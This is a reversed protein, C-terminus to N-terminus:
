SGKEIDELPSKDPHPLCGILHQTAHHLASIALAFYQYVNVNIWANRSRWGYSKCQLVESILLASRSKDQCDRLRTTHPPLFPLGPCESWRRMYFAYNASADIYELASSLNEPCSGANQFGILFATGSYYNRHHILCKSVESLVGVIDSKRYVVCCAKVASALDSWRRSMDDLRPSNNLFDEDCFSRFHFADADTFVKAVTMPDKSTIHELFSFDTWKFTKYNGIKEEYLMALLQLRKLKAIFPVERDAFLEQIPVLIFSMDPQEEPQRLVSIARSLVWSALPNDAVLQLAVKYKDHPESIEDIRQRIEYSIDRLGQFLENIAKSQHQCAAQALASFPVKQLKLFVATVIHEAIKSADMKDTAIPLMWQSGSALPSPLNSTTMKAIVEALHHYLEDNNHNAGLSKLRRHLKAPSPELLVKLLSRIHESSNQPAEDTKEPFSEVLPNNDLTSTPLACHSPYLSFSM